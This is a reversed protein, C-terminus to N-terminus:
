RLIVKRLMSRKKERMAQIGVSLITGVAMAAALMNTGGYSFFPLAMGKTPLASCVVGMNFVAQFFLLFGMAFAITRGFRDTSRRAIVLALVFFVVYLVFVAVSFVLGKEEAGIAFIFDTHAEPLYYEKQMSQNLGVGTFGGNKFAILAQQAQYDAVESAGSSLQAGFGLNEKGLWAAIRAMRNPNNIIHWGVLQAGGLIIIGLHLFKVGGLCMTLVSVTGIVVVSGFDPEMLVPVAFLAIIVLPKFLGNRWMSVKWSTRDLFVALAIIVAIKAFEAPQINFFGLDIWRRSGKVPTGALAVLLMVIVVVSFTIVLSPHNRWHRYDFSSVVAAVVVGMVVYLLQRFFFHYENGHLRLAYKQSASSLIVLGLVVLAMTVLGFALLLVRGRM